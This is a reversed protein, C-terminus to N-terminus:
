AALRGPPAQGLLLCPHRLAGPCLAAARLAQGVQSARRSTWRRACGARASPPRCHEPLLPAAAREAPRGPLCAGECRPGVKLKHLLMILDIASSASPASAGQSSAM